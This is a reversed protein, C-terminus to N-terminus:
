DCQCMLFRDKGFLDQYVQLSAFGAARFVKATAGALAENIEVMVFGGPALYQRAISAISRYFLMPNEDEVFLALHPEYRLVNPQMAAQESRRVYPPNSLIAHASAPAFRTALVDQPQLIDCAFFDIATHHRQANAQAVELAANSVDCAAVQVAPLQVAVAVAICGSGTCLDLAQLTGAPKKDKLIQVAWQVLEETEPRPILVSENVMFSLGCFEAEGTIYQLPKCALLGDVGAEMKGVLECSLEQEPCAYLQARSLGSYRQLLQYTLVRAENDSYLPQLKQISHMVIDSIRSM